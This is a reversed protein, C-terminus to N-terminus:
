DYKYEVLLSDYLNKLLKAKKYNYINQSIEDYVEDLGLFGGSKLYDIVEVVHYGFDTKIPGVVRGTTYSSFVINDLTPPLEGKKVKSYIMNYDKMTKLKLSGDKKSLAFGVEKAEELDNSFFHVVLLLDDKRIFDFKNNLYYDRVEDMEVLIRGELHNELFQNGYLFRRYSSIKEELSDITGGFSRKYSLFLLDSPTKKETDLFEENKLVDNEKVCSLIFVIYLLFVFIPKIKM